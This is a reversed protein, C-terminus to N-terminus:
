PNLSLEATDKYMSPTCSGADPGLGRDGMETFHQLPFSCPFDQKGYPDLYGVLLYKGLVQM